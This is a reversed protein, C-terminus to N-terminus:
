NFSNTRSDGEGSDNLVINSNFSRGGHTRGSFSPYDLCCCFSGDFANQYFLILQAFLPIHDSSNVISLELGFFTLGKKSLSARSGSPM